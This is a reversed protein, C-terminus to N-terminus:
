ITANYGHDEYIDYSKNVSYPFKLVMPFSSMLLWTLCMGVFLHHHHHQHGRSSLMISYDPYLYDADVVHGDEGSELVVVDAGLWSASVGDANEM